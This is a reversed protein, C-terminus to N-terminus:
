SRRSKPTMIFARWLRSWRLRNPPLRSHLCTIHDAAPLRIPISCAQSVNSVPRSRRSCSWGSAGMAAELNIFGTFNGGPRSLSAVFGPGVPDSIAAFIIPITSTEHQLAAIAPTTNALIVEPQLDVLEKAFTRMRDVSTPAWRFDMRVNRGNTWGLEALGQTFGSLNAKAEADNEDSAMLVGVRRMRDGQQARAALPWAAAGGLGAIFERRRM